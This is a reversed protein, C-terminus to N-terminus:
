PAAQAEQATGHAAVEAPLQDRRGVWSGGRWLFGSAKLGDLIARDPKEAFTVRVWDGGEITVGAPAAEAAQARAQQAEIAKLRERDRRISAALNTLHYPPFGPKYVGAWTRALSLLEAKETETLPPVLRAEWGPGKRIERNIAKARTAEAEREAIRARLQVTADTDDSYISRELQRELGDAKSAHDKARGLDAFGKSLGAQIRGRYARDRKESHHGVLIPQGFPIVSAMADARAIRAEGAARASQAWAERRAQKRELRERRTM